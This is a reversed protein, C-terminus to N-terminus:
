KGNKTWCHKELEFKLFIESKLDMETMIFDFMAVMPEKKLASPGILSALGTYVVGYVYVKVGINSSYM